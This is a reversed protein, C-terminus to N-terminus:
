QKYWYLRNFRERDIPDKADTVDGLEGAVVQPALHGTRPLRTAAEDPVILEAVPPSESDMMGSPIDITNLDGQTVEGTKVLQRGAGLKVLEDVFSLLMM